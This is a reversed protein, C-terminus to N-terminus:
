PAIWNRQHGRSDLYQASRWVRFEDPGTRALKEVDKLGVGDAAVDDGHRVVNHLLQTQDAPGQVFVREIRHLHEVVVRRLCAELELWCSGHYGNMEGAVLDGNSAIRM